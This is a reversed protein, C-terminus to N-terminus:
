REHTAIYTVPHEVIYSDRFLDVRAFGDMDRGVPLGLYYLVTPAVDVISGRLISRNPQVNVGFAILFGDPARDHSGPRDPEGRARAVLQKILTERDMGFGSVVLLLDGPALSEMLHGIERDVFAYSRDLLSRHPDGRGIQGFLEPEADRLSSHGFVDLGEFRLATLQTPFEWALEEAAASYARDWRARQLGLPETEEVSIPPMVEEWPLARWYDFTDRAIANATTPAGAQALRLPYSEGEDFQDSIVYGNEARAPYTLPWNVVGAALDYDALIEWMARARLSASATFDEERVFSQVVLAQAFCYDPLLDVPNVDDPLIRRIGSRVGNHPPYKGTAVASWVPEAQTPKLTALDITAGRDLLNAVNPLQGAAVRQRIFRMSAGDLLLLRVRPPAPAAPNRAIARPPRSPGSPRPVPLEGSGRLWLPVGVSLVMSALLLVAAPRTGRRGFSYRLVAISLLLAAFVTTAVAGERMREAAPESLMARFGRLNAWTILAATAAEAASVWALLRVSLWAPSLPRVALLERVLLLLYIAVTLYLGYFTLLTGFWRLTTNSGAPVQPNLQLVLVALYAAGLVGCTMANTLLRLYRMARIIGGLL